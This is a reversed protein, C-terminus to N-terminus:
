SKGQWGPTAVSSSGGAFALHARSGAAEMGPEGSCADVRLMPPGWGLKGKLVSRTRGLFSLLHHPFDIVGRKWGTWLSLPPPPFFSSSSSPFFSTRRPGMSQVKFTFWGGPQKIPCLSGGHSGEQEINRQALSRTHPHPRPESGSQINRAGGRLRAQLSNAAPLNKPPWVGPLSLPPNKLTTSCPFVSLLPLQEQQGEKSRPTVAGAM